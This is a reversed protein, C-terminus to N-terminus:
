APASNKQLKKPAFGTERKVLKALYNADSFGTEEAIRYIPLGGQLILVIARHLRKSRIYDTIGMGFTGKSISYLTGRFIGFERCIRAISLEPDGLRRSIYADIQASLDERRIKLINNLHINPTCMSMLRASAKIVSDSTSPIERLYRLLLERNQFGGTQVKNEAYARSEDSLLQGFRIYSMVTENDIVPSVAETLGM